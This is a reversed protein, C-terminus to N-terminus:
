YIVPIKKQCLLEIFIITLCSNIYSVEYGGVGWGKRKGRSAIPDRAIRTSQHSSQCGKGTM